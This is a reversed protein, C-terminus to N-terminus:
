DEPVYASVLLKHKKVADQGAKEDVQKLTVRGDAIGLRADQKIFYSKGAAVDIEVVASSEPTSSTFTYKGPKLDWKFFTGPAAGGATMGNVKVELQGAAGVARKTRYLYVTGKGDSTKFQKAEDSKEAPAKSSGACNVLYITSVLLILLTILRNKM